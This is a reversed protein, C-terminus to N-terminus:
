WEVGIYIESKGLEQEGRLKIRGHGARWPFNRGNKM